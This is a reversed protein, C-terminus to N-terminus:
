QREVICCCSQLTPSAILAGPNTDHALHQALRPFAQEKLKNFSITLLIAPVMFCPAVVFGSFM